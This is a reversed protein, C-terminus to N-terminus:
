LDNKRFLIHREVPVGTRNEIIMWHVDHSAGSGHVLEWDTTGASLKKQGLKREYDSDELGLAPLRFLKAVAEVSTKVKLVFKGLDPLSLSPFEDPAAAPTFTSTLQPLPHSVEGKDREPLPMTPDGLLTINLYSWRDRDEPLTSGHEAVYKKMSALYFDGLRGKKDDHYSKFFSAILEVGYDSSTIELNGSDDISYIPGGIALRNSGLYAVAGAASQVLGVGVSRLSPDSYKFVRDRQAIVDIDFAANACAISATVPTVAGGTPAAAGDFKNSPILWGEVAMQSGDGHDFMASLVNQEKGSFADVVTDFNYNGASRFHKKVGRWSVDPMSLLLLSSLEGDYTHGAFPKGGFLSLEGSAKPADTEFRKMKELYGAVAKDTSFPLRGVAFHPNLCQENSGYCHDTALWGGQKAMRVVAFYSPPVQQANGLVTVYRIRARASLAMWGQLKAAIKKALSYNYGKGTVVDYTMILRDGSRDTAYGEPLDKDDIEADRASFDEVYLIATKVGHRLQQFERLAEAGAKLERTTLILSDAQSWKWDRIARAPEAWTFLKVRARRISLIERRLPDWQFPLLRIALRGSAVQGDIWRGPYLQGRNVPPWNDWTAELERTWIKSPPATWLDAAVRKSELPELELRAQTDAAIEVNWLYTPLEPLTERRLPWAQLPAQPARPRIVASGSKLPALDWDPFDVVWEQVTQLQSPPRASGPERSWESKLGAFAASAGWVGLLFVGRWAKSMSKEAPFSKRNFPKFSLRKRYFGSASSIGWGLESELGTPGFCL